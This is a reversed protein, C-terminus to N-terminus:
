VLKGVRAEMAGLIVGSRWCGGAVLAPGAAIRAEAATSLRAEAGQRAVAVLDEITRGELYLYITKM